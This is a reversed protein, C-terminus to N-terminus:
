TLSKASSSGPNPKPKGAAPKDKTSSESVVPSKKRFMFFSLIVIAAALGIIAPLIVQLSSQLLSVQITGTILPAGYDASFFTFTHVGLTSPANFNFTVDKKSGHLIYVSSQSQIFQGDINLGITINMNLTTSNSTLHLTIATSQGQTATPVNDITAQLITSEPTSKDQTTITIGNPDQGLVFFALKKAGLEGGSTISATFAGGSQMTILASALLRSPLPPNVLLYAYTSSELSNPCTPTGCVSPASLTTSTITIKFLGSHQRVSTVPPTGAPINVTISNGSTLSTVVARIGGLTLTANLRYVFATSPYYPVDGPPPNFTISAGHTQQTLWEHELTITANERLGTPNVLTFTAILPEGSTFVGNLVTVNSVYMGKGLSSSLVSTTLPAPVSGSDVAVINGIINGPKVTSNSGYTLTGSITLRRNDGSYGFSGQNVQIQEVRFLHFAIGYDFNNFFVSTVNWNPGLPAQPLVGTFNFLFIGKSRASFVQTLNTSPASPSIISVVNSGTVNVGQTDSVRVQLTDGPVWFETPVGGLTTQISGEGSAGTALIVVTGRFWPYSTTSSPTTTDNLSIFQMNKLVAFQSSSCSSSSCAGQAIPHALSLSITNNLSISTLTYSKPYYYTTATQGWLHKANTATANYTVSATANHSVQSLPILKMTHAMSESPVSGVSAVEINAVQIKLGRGTSNSNFMFALNLKSGILRTVDYCEDTSGCSVPVGGTANLPPGGTFNFSYPPGIRTVNLELVPQLPKTANYVLYRASTGKGITGNWDFKLFTTPGPGKPVTLTYNISQSVTNNIGISYRFATDPVPQGTQTNNITSFFALTPPNSPATTANKSTYIDFQAYTLNFAPCPCGPTYPNSPAMSPQGLQSSNGSPNQVATPFIMSLSLLILFVGLSSRM